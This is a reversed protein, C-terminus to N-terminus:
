VGENIVRDLLWQDILDWRAGDTDAAKAKAMAVSLAMWGALWNKGLFFKVQM